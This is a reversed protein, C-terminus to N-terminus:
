MSVKVDKILDLAHAVHLISFSHLIHFLNDRDNGNFIKFLAVDLASQLANM